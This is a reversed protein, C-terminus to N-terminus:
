DPSTRRRQKAPREDYRKMYSAVVPAPDLGLCGAYASVFGRVYVRPPLDGYREEELFRLYAPNIKTVSAIEELETGRRLRARRLRAGDFDGSGDDLEEFAELPAAPEEALPSPEAASRMEVDRADLQADYARRSEQNSLVAYAKEVRERIAQADGGRVVSYTALSDEAYTARALKYAREIEDSETERSIELIEYHDQESLHKV